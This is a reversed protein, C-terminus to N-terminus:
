KYFITEKSYGYTIKDIEDRINFDPISDYNILALPHVKIYNNIIFEERLLGIGNNPLMSVKFALEPSALNMMLKVKDTHLNTIDTTEKKYQIKGEYVSGVEGNCCVVSISDGDNLIKTANITGVISVVGLERAVIAAHCTRGGKNTVIAGARKMIPEWDPDTIETVLIDGDKFNDNTIEDISNFLKVTGHFLIVKAIGSLIFKNKIKGTKYQTYLSNNKRSYVTEPRAQLIYLEEGDFGWEVDMPCWRKYYNSYFEEISLVWKALKKINNESLSFINKNEVGITKIGNHEKDFVMM